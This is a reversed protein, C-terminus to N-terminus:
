PSAIGATACTAFSFAFVAVGRAAADLRLEHPRGDPNRALEYMRPADVRVSSRGAEVQVDAGATMADLPAGDQTLELRAPPKLGLMLDVPDASTALVANASAAHYPLVLAGREGALSLSEDGAQWAGEAYFYGDRREPQPPLRYIMPLGRPLYGEPNGLAGRNYGTPLEPTPRFCVAGPQDEDRLAGVPRPLGAAHPSGSLRAADAALGALASEIEAYAGEGAHQYRIYGQADILYVTPWYRNAFADWNEYQNDLLVPYEIGLRRVAAEVQRPDRAFAFEPSHIGLFSVPLGRFVKHWATLYALTRLCNLCTFDWIDVLVARGRWDALRVPRATNLWEGPALEPARLRPALAFM